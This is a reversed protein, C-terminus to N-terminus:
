GLGASVPKKSGTFGWYRTFRHERTEMWDHCENRNRHELSVLELCSWKLMRMADQLLDKSFMRTKATNPEAELNLPFTQQGQQFTVM